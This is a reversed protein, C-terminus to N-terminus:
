YAWARMNSYVLKQLLRESIEPVVLVIYTSFASGADSATACEYTSPANLDAVRAARAVEIAKRIHEPGWDPNRSTLMDFVSSEDSCPHDFLAVYADLQLDRTM